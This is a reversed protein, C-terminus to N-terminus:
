VSGPAVASAGGQPGQTSRVGEGQDVPVGAAKGVSRLSRGMSLTRYPRPTRTTLTTSEPDVDVVAIPKPGRPYSIRLHGALDGVDLARYAPQFLRGRAQQERTTPWSARVEIVEGDEACRYTHPKAKVAAHFRAATARDACTIGYRNASCPFDPEATDIESEMLYESLINRHM